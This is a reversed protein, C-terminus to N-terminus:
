SSARAWWRGRAPRRGHGLRGLAWVVRGGVIAPPVLRGAASAPQVGHGVRRRGAGSPRRGVRVIGALDWPAVRRLFQEVLGQMLEVGEGILDAAELLQDAGVPGVLGAGAGPLVQPEPVFPVGGRVGTVGV